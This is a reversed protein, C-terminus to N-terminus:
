PVAPATEEPITVMTGEWSRFSLRSFPSFPPQTNLLRADPLERESWAERVEAPVGHAEWTDVWRHYDDWPLSPLGFGATVRVRIVAALRSKMMRLETLREVLSEGYNRADREYGGLGRGWRETAPRFIAMLYCFRVTGELRWIDYRMRIIADTSRIAGATDTEMWVDSARMFGYSYNIRILGPEITLADHIDFSPQIVWVPKPWPTEPNLDSDMIAAPLLDIARLGIDFIGGQTTFNTIVGPGFPQDESRLTRPVERHLVPVAASAAVAFIEDAGADIAAQIPTSCGVGGDVWARGNLTEPPFVVPIASSAMIADVLSVIPEGSNVFSGAEDVYAVQNDELAVMALRLKMGSWVRGGLERWQQAGAGGIAVSSGHLRQDPAVTLVDFREPDLSLLAVCDTASVPEGPGGLPTWLTEWAAGPWPQRNVWIRHDLGRAFVVGTGAGSAALVPTGTLPGGMSRWPAWSQRDTGTQQRVYMQGDIGRCMVDIRGRGNVFVAPDSTALMVEGAHAFVEWPGHRGGPSSFSGILSRDGTKTVALRGGDPTVAAAVQGHVRFGGFPQWRQWRENVWESVYAQNFEDRVYLSASPGRSLTPASELRVQPWAGDPLSIPEWRRWRGVERADGGWLVRYICRTEDASRAVVAVTGATDSFVVPTSSIPGGLDSWPTFQGPSVVSGPEVQCRVYLHDDCGRALVFLRGGSDRAAAIGAGRLGPGTASWDISDQRAKRRIPELNWISRQRVILEYLDRFQEGATVLLLLSLPASLLLTAVGVGAARAIDMARSILDGEPLALFYMDSNTRLEFWRKELEELGRRGGEALKAANVAGVSTGTVIDPQDSHHEWRAFLADYLFRVAGLEFDGRSGGGSLAIATRRFRYGDAMPGREVVVDVPNIQLHTDPMEPLLTDGAAGGVARSGERVAQAHVASKETFPNVIDDGPMDGGFIVDKATSWDGVADPAVGLPFTKVGDLAPPLAGAAHKAREGEVAVDAEHKAREAMWSAVDVGLLAELTEGENEVGLAAWVDSDVVGNVKLNRSEQFARVAAEVDDDFIGERGADFGAAVLRDQLLRVLDGKAGAWLVDLKPM